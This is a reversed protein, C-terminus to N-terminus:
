AIRADYESAERERGLQQRATSTRGSSAQDSRLSYCRWVLQGATEVATAAVIQLQKLTRTEMRVLDNTPARVIAAADAPTDGGCSQFRDRTGGPRCPYGASIAHEGGPNDGATGASGGRTPPACGALEAAALGAVGGASDQLSCNPKPGASEGLNIWNTEGTEDTENKPRVRMFGVFSGAIM